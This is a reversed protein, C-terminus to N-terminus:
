DHPTRRSLAGNTIKQVSKWRGAAASIRAGTRQLFDHGKEIQEINKAILTPARQGTRQAEEIRQHLLWDQTLSDDALDKMGQIADLAEARAKADKNSEFKVLEALANHSGERPELDRIFSNSKKVDESYGFYEFDKEFVKKTIKYAKPDEFFESVLSKANTKHAVKRTAKKMEVSLYKSIVMPLEDDMNELHGVINPRIFPYMINLHQPRWHPDLLEVADKQIISLFEVFSVEADEKLDYRQIFWDWVGPERGAIKNLYASVIRSFPNRVFSFVNADSIWDQGALVNEFPSADLDHVDAQESHTDPSVARWLNDKVSSCGVKPNNLYVINAAKHGRISQQYIFPLM